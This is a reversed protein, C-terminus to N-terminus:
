KGAHEPAGFVFPTDFLSMCSTNYCLPTFRLTKKNGNPLRVTM